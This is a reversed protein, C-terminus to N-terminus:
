VSFLTVFTVRKLNCYQYLLNLQKIELIKTVDEEKAYGITISDGVNLFPLKDSNIGIEVSYKKEKTDMIYFVSNGNVSYSNISSITIDKINLKDLNIDNFGMKSLYNRSAERIGLSSDTVVVKQYDVVDVFSYMKVLGANDKLSMLYTPRNNLNILLPFTSVYGMQQVQGESSAMASYEEAGPVAYYKTEKTRMNTLIFGINSEDSALSTIGTYLYVDDNMAMYNYGQTTAVVNKQGFKSNWFGNIYKGWDNVQELIVDAKYVNDVWTPVSDVSYYKSSGDIPNLIIVGSVDRKLGVGSYKITPVIWYPNGEEDIEFSEAGFIKTPYDFRLKRYLNESFMASPMYKMGDDLKILKAEGSVSDVSIYGKVGDKRNSFYKIIGDYELPTVRIVNNNYNIQTYIDSVYFQSVLEPMQGMVRDGLKQSSDKDLLPLSNFDVLAIDDTFSVSDDIVIRNKYAKSNFIPSLVFNVLLICIFSLSIFGICGIIDWYLKLSVFKFDFRLLLSVFGYIIVLVFLFLWFGFSSLNIPPLFLYYLGFGIVLTILLSILKKM